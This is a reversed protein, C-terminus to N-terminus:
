IVRALKKLLMMLQMKEEDKLVSFIANINKVHKPFNTEMLKQGAKTLAVRNARRDSPDPYKTIYGNKVLNNIVVTMNGGTSLIKEMVTSIRMDGKHYLVELVGFQAVTVGTEKITKVEERHITQAARSLVVLTKLNLASRKDYQKNNM